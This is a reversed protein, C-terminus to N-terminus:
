EATNDSRVVDSLYSLVPAAAQTNEELADLILALTTEETWGQQEAWSLIQATVSMVM